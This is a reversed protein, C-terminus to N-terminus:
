EEEWEAARRGDDLLAGGGGIGGDPLVPAEEPYPSATRARLQDSLQRRLVRLREHELLTLGYRNEPHLLLDILDARIIRDLETTNHFTIWGMPLLRLFKEGAPSRPGPTRLPLLSRELKWALDWEAGAPATIDRGLLFYLRDVTAIREYLDDYKVGEVPTRRLEAGVRVPLNALARAIVARNDEQDRTASIFLRLPEM